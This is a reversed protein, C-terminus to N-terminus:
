KNNIHKTHLINIQLIIALYTSDLTCYKGRFHLLLLFSACFPFVWAFCSFRLITSIVASSYIYKTIKWWQNLQFFCYFVTSFFETCKMTHCCCSVWICSNVVTPKPIHEYHLTNSNVEQTLLEWASHKKKEREAPTQQDTILLIQWWFYSM